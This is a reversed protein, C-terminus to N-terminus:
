REAKHTLPICLEALKKPLYVSGKVDVSIPGYDSILPKDIAAHPKADAYVLGSSPIAFRIVDKPSKVSRLEPEAAEFRVGLDGEARWADFQRVEPPPTPRVTMRRSLPRRLAVPPMPGSRGFVRRFKVPKGQYLVDFRVSFSMRRTTTVVRTQPPVTVSWAGNTFTAPKFIRLVRGDSYSEIQAAPITGRFAVPQPLARVIEVDVARQEPAYGYGIGVSGDDAILLDETPHADEMYTWRKIHMRDNKTRLDKDAVSIVVKAPSSANATIRPDAHVMSDPLIAKPPPLPKLKDSPIRLPEPVQTLAISPKTHLPGYGPPVLLDYEDTNGLRYIAADHIVGDGADFTVSMAVSRIEQPTPVNLRILSVIWQRPFGTIEYERGNPYNVQGIISASTPFPTRVRHDETPRRNSQHQYLSFTAVLLIVGGIGV